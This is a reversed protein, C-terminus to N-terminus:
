GRVESLEDLPTVDDRAGRVGRGQVADGSVDNEAGSISSDPERDDNGSGPAIRERASIAAEGPVRIGLVLQKRSVEAEALRVTAQGGPAAARRSHFRAWAQLSVRSR